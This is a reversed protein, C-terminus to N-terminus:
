FVAKLNLKPRQSTGWGSFAHFHFHGAQTHSLLGSKLDISIATQAVLTSGTVFYVM